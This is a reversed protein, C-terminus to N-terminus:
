DIKRRSLVESQSPRHQIRAHYWFLALSEFFHSSAEADAAWMVPIDQSGRSGDLYVEATIMTLM